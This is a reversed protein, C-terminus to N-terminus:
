FIKIGCFVLCRYFLYLGLCFGIFMGFAVVAVAFRDNTYDVGITGLRNWYVGVIVNLIVYEILMCLLIIKKIKAMDKINRVRIILTPAFLFYVALGFGCVTSLLFIDSM